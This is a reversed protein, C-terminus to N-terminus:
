WSLSGACGMLLREFHIGEHVFAVSETRPNLFVVNVSLIASRVTM